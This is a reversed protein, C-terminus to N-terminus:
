KNNDASEQTIVLFRQPLPLGPVTDSHVFIVLQESVVEHIKVMTANMYARSDTQNREAEGRVFLELWVKIQLRLRATESFQECKAVNSKTGLQGDHDAVSIFVLL